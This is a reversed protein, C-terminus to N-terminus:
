STYLLCTGNDEAELYEKVTGHKKYSIIISQTVQLIHALLFRSQTKYYLGSGIGMSDRRYENDSMKLGKLIQLGKVLGGAVKKLM